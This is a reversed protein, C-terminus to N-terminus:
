VLYLALCSLLDHSMHRLYKERVDPWHLVHGMYWENWTGQGGVRVGDGSMNEDELMNLQGSRRGCLMRSEEM